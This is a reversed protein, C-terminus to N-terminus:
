QNIWLHALRGFYSRKALSEKILIGYVRISFQSFPWQKHCKHSSNTAIQVVFENCGVNLIESHYKLFGNDICFNHKFSSNKKKFIKAAWTNGCCNNSFYQELQMSHSTSIICTHVATELIVSCNVSWASFQFISYNFLTIFFHMHESTHRLNLSLSLHTFAETYLINHCWCILETCNHVRVFLMLLLVMNMNTTVGSCIHSLIKLQYIWIITTREVGTEHLSDDDSKERERKEKKSISFLWQPKADVITTLLTTWIERCLACQQKGDLLLSINHNALFIHRFEPTVFSSQM